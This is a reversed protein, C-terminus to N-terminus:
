SAELTRGDSSTWTRIQEKAALTLAILFLFIQALIRM